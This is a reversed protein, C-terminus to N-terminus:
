MIVTYVIIIFQKLPDSNKIKHHRHLQHQNSHGSSHGVRFLGAGRDKGFSNKRIVNRESFTFRDVFTAVVMVVTGAVAAFTISSM